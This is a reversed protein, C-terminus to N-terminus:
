LIGSCIVLDIDNLFFYCLSKKLLDRVSRFTHKVDPTPVSRDELTNVPFKLMEHPHVKGFPHKCKM